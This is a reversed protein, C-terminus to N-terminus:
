YKRYEERGSLVVDFRYVDNGDHKGVYKAFSGGTKITKKGSRTSLDCSDKKIVPEEPFDENRNNECGHIDILEYGFSESRDIKSKKGAFRILDERSPVDIWVIKELGSFNRHKISMDIRKACDSCPRILIFRYFGANDSSTSGNNAFHPDYMQLKEQNKSLKRANLGEQNFGHSNLQWIQLSTNTIPVCNKDLVYGEIIIAEGQSFFLDKTKRTLNNTRHFKKPKPLVHYKDNTTVRCNFITDRSELDVNNISVNAFSKCAIFILLFFFFKKLM